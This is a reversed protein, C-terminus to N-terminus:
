LIANRILELYTRWPMFVYPYKYDEKVFLIDKDGLWKVLTKWQSTKRAKCEGKINERIIIDGDLSNDLKGFMGSGIVRKCPINNRRHLDVIHHENRRGKDKAKTM